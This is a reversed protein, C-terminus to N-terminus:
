VSDSCSSPSVPSWWVKMLDALSVMSRTVLAPWDEPTPGAPHRGLRTALADFQALTVDAVTLDYDTGPLLWDPYVVPHLDRTVQVIVHIYSGKLSSVTLTHGAASSMSQTSPSNQGSIVFTAHHPWPSYPPNTSIPWAVSKWYTEVDGGVELTVGDFPKIINVEFSVQM